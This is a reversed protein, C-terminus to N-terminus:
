RTALERALELIFRAHRALGAAPFDESWEDNPRHHRWWRAILAEEQQPTVGEWGEDPVPFAVPIGRLHFSWHDSTPQAPVDTTTWGNRSAVAKAAASILPDTGGEIIWSKPPALPAGADVNIVARTRRLPVLPSKTYFASGLSGEEEATLFLFVVSRPPPAARMSEAIALLAAVGVANDILGNYISDGAVPEGVGIHDYHATLVVVSDRKAPDSGRIRAVINATEVPEYRATSRLQITASTDPPLNPPSGGTVMVERLKAGLHPSGLLVPLKRDFPGGTGGRVFWRDPGRAHRLARYRGSDGVVLILAIAGSSDLSSIVVDLPVGPQADAVIVRNRPRLADLRSVADPGLTGAHIARGYFPRFSSSDGGLHHFFESPFTTVVGARDLTLQADIPPLTARTLPVPQRYGGNAGMPELGLRRLQAIIYDAAIQQGRSGNARGRLSDHSLIRAHTRLAMTDVSNARTQASVSGACVLLLALVTAINNRRSAAGGEKVRIGKPGVHRIGPLPTLIAM